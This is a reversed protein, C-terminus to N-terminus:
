ALLEKAVARRRRSEQLTELRSFSIGHLVRAKEGPAGGAVRQAVVEFLFAARSEDVTSERPRERHELSAVVLASRRRVCFAARPRDRLNAASRSAAPLSLAYRGDERVAWEDRSLFAHHPFGDASVTTLVAAEGKM